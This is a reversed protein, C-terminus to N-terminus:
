RTAKRIIRNLARGLECAPETRCEPCGNPGTSHDFLAGMAVKQLCPHCVQPFITRGGVKRSGLQTSAGRTIAEGGYICVHGDRQADSMRAPIPLLALAEHNAMGTTVAPEPAM